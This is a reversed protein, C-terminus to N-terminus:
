ILFKAFQDVSVLHHLKRESFHIHASEESIQQWHFDDSDVPEICRVYNTYETVWIAVLHKHDLATERETRHEVAKSKDFMRESKGDISLVTQLDRDARATM